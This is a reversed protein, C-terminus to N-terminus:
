SPWELPSTAAGLFSRVSSVPWSDTCPSSPWWLPCYRRRPTGSLIFSVLPALAGVVLGGRWGYVLGALVAPWHMPLIWRVPAGLLHAIAPLVLASALLEMNAMLAGWRSLPIVTCTGTRTQM